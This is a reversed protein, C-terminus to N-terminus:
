LYHWINMRKLNRYTTSNDDFTFGCDKCIYKDIIDNYVDNSRSHFRYKIHKCSTNIPVNQMEELKKYENRLNDLGIIETLENELEAIQKKIERKRIDLQDRNQSM